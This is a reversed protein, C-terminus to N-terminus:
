TWSVTQSATTEARCTIRAQILGASLEGAVFDSALQGHCCKVSGSNRAPTPNRTHKVLDQLLSWGQLLYEVVRNGDMPMSQMWKFDEPDAKLAINHYKCSNFM